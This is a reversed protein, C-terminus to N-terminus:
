VRGPSSLSWSPITCSTSIKGYSCTTYACGLIQEPSNSTCLDRPNQFVFPDGLRLCFVLGLGLWCSFSFRGFQTRASLLTFNFSFSFFYLYWSRALSNFFNHFIFTITIGNIIPARAVSVLLNTRLSSFKSILPRTSVIWVVTNNLDAQIRLLIRSVQPCKSDSLSWHSVM